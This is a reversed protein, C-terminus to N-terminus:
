RQKRSIEKDKALNELKWARTMCDFVIVFNEIWFNNAEFIILNEHHAYNTNTSGRFKSQGNKRYFFIDLM